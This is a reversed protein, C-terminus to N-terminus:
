IEVEDTLKLRRKLKFWLRRLQWFKSSAMAEKQWALEHREAALQCKQQWLDQLVEEQHHYELAVALLETALTQNFPPPTQTQHLTNAADLIDRIQQVFRDRSFFEVVRDRAKGGMQQRYQFDNILLLLAKVYANIEATDSEGKPILIGTDTTVLEAQGGVEAAVVPLQMAMAEYIALSIGEYASPLLLIDAAAYFDKMTEPSAPPLLCFYDSMKGEKIKSQMATKAEGGGLVIVVFSVCSHTLTRVIDVLFLPRKQQVLRAPFLLVVTDDIINLQSRIIQRKKDDRIWYDADICTYCVKIKQTNTKLRNEYQYALAQSTVIQTDLFSSFQCSIRPYGNGRWGPDATHTLDIYTIDPFNQRLWPLFYYAIYCNSILVIDISRSQILYQVFALWQHLALFNPLHYIEPTIKYFQQQWLHHSQVTTLITIHYNDSNLFSLLDLNFRDAGGVELFPFFCLIHHFKTNRIPNFNHIKLQTQIPTFSNYSRQIDGFNYKSFIDRYRSQIKDIEQSNKQSNKLSTSLMGSKSRRYCDLYEPITWGKQHNVIAKLWREWDGYVKIDEDFGGLCDFDSKRYLLRGTVQNQQIFLSPQSFGQNWWYELDQFGVSYSNVLSFDPHTELFIVCKEIYTPDIIDDLDIFFLYQGRAQQIATNRGASLGRNQSHRFTKIKASKQPLSNFLAIADKDTSCDDVIIWEFNQWTQYMVAQYTEEFYHHANYFSSIISVVPKTLAPYDESVEHPTEAAKQYHHRLIDIFERVSTFQPPTSM